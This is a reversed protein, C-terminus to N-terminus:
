EAGRVETFFVYAPTSSQYTLTQGDEDFTVRYRGEGLRQYSWASDDPMEVQSLKEPFAGIEERYDNLDYDLTSMEDLMYYRLEEGSLTIEQDISLFVMIAILAFLVAALIEPPKRNLRVQDRASRVSAQESVEDMVDGALGAAEHSPKTENSM